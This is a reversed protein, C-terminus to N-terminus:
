VLTQKQRRVVTERQGRLMERDGGIIVTERHRWVVLPRNRDGFGGGSDRQGRLWRREREGAMATERQARIGTERQRRMWRRERERGDGDRETGAMATERLGRM